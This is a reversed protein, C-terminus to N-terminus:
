WDAATICTLTRCKWQRYTSPKPTQSLLSALFAQDTFNALVWVHQGAAIAHQIAERSITAVGIKPAVLTMITPPLGEDWVRLNQVGSAYYHLILPDFRPSIVVLDAKRLEPGVTALAQRWPEKLGDAFGIQFTLGVALILATVARLLNAFRARDLLQGATLLCLPVVMWCLIRPLLIPRVLSALIALALFGTPIIGLVLFARQSPPRTWVSVLLVGILLTALEVGPWSPPTAVGAILASLSVAVSRASLPPIWDLGGFQSAAVMERLYPFTLAAVVVNTLLWAAIARLRDSKGTCALYPLVTLNCAVILLLLTAHTYLCLVAGAGYCALTAKSHPDRLLRAVALLVITAPILTLAYARAEQAFYLEFPSLAFLVSGLLAQSRTGLERGLMYLLPVALVSAVVSFSRLAEESTGFLHMWGALLLYYLPPTPEARLGETLLFKIGFLDYYYRSFIEDSWLSLSGLHIVRVVICLGVILSLYFAPSVTATPRLAAFGRLRPVAEYSLM